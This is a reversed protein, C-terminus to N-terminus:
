MSALAGDWQRDVEAQIEPPVPGLRSDSDALLERLGPGPDVDEDAREISEAVDAPVMAAVRRGYSTLYVFGGQAVTIALHHLLASTRPLEIDRAAPDIPPAEDAAFLISGAQYHVHAFHGFTNETQPGVRPPEVSQATM